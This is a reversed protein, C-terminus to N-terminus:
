ARPWGISAASRSGTCSARISTRPFGPNCPSYGSGPSSSRWAARSHDGRFVCAGPRPRALVRPSIGARCGASLTDTYGAFVTGIPGAFPALAVGAAALLVPAMLFGTSEPAPRASEVGPKTAFAGWLLRASYAVTLVSGFTVGSSPSSRRPPVPRRCGRLLSGFVSEKAVFGFTFPLGAMSMTALATIVALVPAQRGLGSLKRLDRTGARHDVIGVALFLAAKFVAHAVLLALGALAADRTGYGVMITLLGLQSVTGYALLLKLDFQKLARWGGVLMTLVGLGVLLTQLGPATAFGPALRAILYIGAQVMAAAHLFASVPTPAAMASALWFHFPVMASKTVAGLLLLFIGM